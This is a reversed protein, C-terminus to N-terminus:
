YFKLDQDSLLELNHDLGLTEQWWKARSKLGEKRDLELMRYYFARKSDRENLRRLMHEARKDGNVAHETLVERKTRRKRKM